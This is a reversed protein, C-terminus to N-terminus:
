KGGQGISALYEKYEETERFDQHEPTEEPKTSQEVEAVEGFEVPKMNTMFEEFIETQEENFSALLKTLSEKQAPVVKNSEQFKEVKTAVKEEAFKQPQSTQADM